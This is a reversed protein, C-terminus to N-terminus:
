AISWGVLCQTVTQGFSWVSLLRGGGWQTVMRRVVLSGYLWGTILQMVVLYGVLRGILFWGVSWQPVM